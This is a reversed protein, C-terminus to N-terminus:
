AEPEEPPEILGCRILIEQANFAAIQNDPVGTVLAESLDAALDCQGQTALALGYMSYVDVM